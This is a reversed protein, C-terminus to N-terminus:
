HQLYLLFLILVIIVATVKAVSLWFERKMRKESCEHWKADSDRYSGLSYFESAAERYKKKAMLQCANDYIIQRREEEEAEIKQRCRGAIQRCEKRKADADPWGTISEFQYIADQYDGAIMYKCGRTYIENIEERCEQAKKDAREYGSISEFKKLAEVPNSIRCAEDFIYWRCINAWYDASFADDYSGDLYYGSIQEYLYLAEAYKTNSQLDSALWFIKKRCEEAKSDADRYNEYSIDEFMELAAVYNGEAMFNEGAKYIRKRCEKSKNASNKYGAIEDFRSRASIYDGEKFLEQAHEYIEQQEALIRRCEGAKAETDRYGTSKAFCDLAISYKENEMGLCGLSYYCEKFKEDSDMYGKVQGFHEAAEEYSSYSLFKCGESYLAFKRSEEAYGELRARMEANGFRVAKAYFSSDTFPKVREALQEEKKLRLSALLKALYANPNKPDKDLVQECLEDARKFEGDELILFARTLLREIEKKDAHIQELEGSIANTSNCYPCTVFEANEPFNLSAGCSQCKIVSM